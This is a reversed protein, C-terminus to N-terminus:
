LEIQLETHYVSHYVNQLQHLYKVTTIYAETGDVENFHFLEFDSDHIKITMNWRNCYEGDKEKGFGAKELIEPTLPIAACEHSNIITDTMVRIYGRSNHQVWNGIRLETAQIM